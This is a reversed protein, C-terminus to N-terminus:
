NNEGEILVRLRVDHRGIKEGLVISVPWEILVYQIDSHFFFMSSKSKSENAKTM